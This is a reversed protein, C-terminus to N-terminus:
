THTNSWAICQEDFSDSFLRVIMIGVDNLKKMCMWDVSFLDHLLVWLNRVQSSHGNREIPSFLFNKAELLWAAVGNSLPWM